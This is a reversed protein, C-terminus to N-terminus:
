LSTFIALFLNWPAAAATNNIEPNIRVTTRHVMILDKWGTFVNRIRDLVKSSIKENFISFFVIKQVRQGQGVYVLIFLLRSIKIFTMYASYLTGLYFIAVHLSDVCLQETFSSEKIQFPPIINCWLRFYGSKVGLKPLIEM